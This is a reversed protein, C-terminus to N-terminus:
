EVAENEDDTAMSAALSELVQEPTLQHVEIKTAVPGDLRNWLEKAYQANGAAQTIMADALEELREPNEKLKRKVIRILSVQRSGSPNGSVGPKFRGLEDRIGSSDQQSSDTVKDADLSM